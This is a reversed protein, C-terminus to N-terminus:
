SRALRERTAPLQVAQRRPTGSSISTLAGSASSRMRKPPGRGFRIAWAASRKMQRQASAARGTASTSVPWTVAAPTGRPRMATTGFPM